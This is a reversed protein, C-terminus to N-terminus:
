ERNGVGESDDRRPKPPEWTEDLLKAGSLRTPPLEVPRGVPRPGDPRPEVPRPEVPVPELVVPRLRRLPWGREPRTFEERLTVARFRLTLGSWLLVTAVAWAFVGFLSFGIMEIWGKGEYPATLEDGYCALAFLAVPPTLGGQVKAVTELGVGMMPLFMCCMWPLWHGLGVGATMMLTWVTARLSTRSLVSFWLGLTASFCAFVLWAVMLFPVALPHLGGLAIGVGWIVALWVWALRVSLVCGVWKAFLMPTSDLPTTLLSDLTQRDREGSYATSARVAVALLALSGVVTSAFRVWLNIQAPLTNWQHRAAYFYELHYLVILLAPLLTAALLVGVVVWGMWNLRIGGEAFVEKWLMPHAGVQPRGRAARSLRGSKSGMQALAVARLRLVAWGTFLVGAPLHFLAYHGLLKPLEADLRGARGLEAVRPFYLFLNGANFADFLDNVTYPSAGFWVPLRLWSVRSQQGAFALFSVALYAVVFLYAVAIADRPRKFYASVLISVGGLGVMTLGTAAFGVQVLLPDVGGLFQLLSLIPLGTLIFLTLNALRSLLKSLVIERNRLDTALMFELTKRDKEEAISGAVYAPTLIVIAALQVSLFLEFYEQALRAEAQAVTMGGYRRAGMSVAFLLFLLLAAYALRMWVHRGRRASRLMDYFLVPGFLKLWGRRLLVASLLLLVGWAVVQGEASMRSRFWLAAAAGALLLLGGVREVWSQRSNSWGVWRGLSQAVPM